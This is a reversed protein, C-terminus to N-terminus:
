ATGGKGSKVQEMFEQCPKFTPFDYAEVVITTNKQINRALRKARHKTKFNGFGRLYIISGKAVETKVVEFFADVVAAIDKKDQATLDAIESVLDAKTM